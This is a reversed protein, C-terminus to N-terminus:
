RGEKMEKRIVRSVNPGRYTAVAQISQGRGENVPVSGAFFDKDSRNFVSCSPVRFVCNLIFCVLLHAVNRACLSPQV